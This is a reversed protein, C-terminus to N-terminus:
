ITLWVVIGAHLAVVRGVENAAGLVDGSIGGLCRNAWWWVVAAGGVGAGLALVGAPHPWTLAAAPLGVLLPLLVSKPSHQDAFEAGLGSHAAEGLTIMISMGLKAAVEATVVLLVAQRPFDALTTGATVLGIAVVVVAIVGGVGLQTDQMVSQREAPPGHVILADGLDAVGDLHTIGTVAYIWALFVVGVTVAPLPLVLPFLILLGLLYGVLPFTVPCNQFATWAAEDAGVPVRSLFGVAGRLATLVM